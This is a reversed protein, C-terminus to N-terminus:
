SAHRAFSMIQVGIQDGIAVLKGRGVCQAGVMLNVNVASVPQGLPVIEGPHMRALEAVPVQRDALCFRLSVHLDGVDGLDMDADADDNSELVLEDDGDNQIVMHSQELEGIFQSRRRGDLFAAVGIGHPNGRLVVRERICIFDGAELADLSRQAILTRGLFLRMRLALTRVDVANRGPTWSSCLRVLSRMAAGDAPVAVGRSRWGSKAEKVTFGLCRPAAAPKDQMLRLTDIVVIKGTAREMAEILHQFAISAITRRAILSLSSFDPGTRLLPTLGDVQELMVILRCEGIRIAIEATCSLRGIHHEWQFHWGAGSDEPEVMRTHRGLLANRCEAANAACRPFDTAILRRAQTATVAHESM